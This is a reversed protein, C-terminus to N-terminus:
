GVSMGGDVRITAGTLYDTQCTVLFYVVEAIEDAEGLRVKPIKSLIFKEVLAKEGSLMSTDCYGPAIANVVIGQDALERAASYTAAIIGAKSAAYVSALGAGREGAVSAINIIRGRTQNAMIPAFVGMCSLTGYLNVDLVRQIKSDEMMLLPTRIFIGANNVLVDARGYASLTKEAVKEIDSRVTVDMEAVLLNSNSNSNFDSQIKELGVTSIDTAVVYFDNLLLKRIIAYGIGGAAGTVVAVCRDSKNYNM